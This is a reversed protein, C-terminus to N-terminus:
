EQNRQSFEMEYVRLETELGGPLFEALTGKSPMYGVFLRGTTKKPKNEIGQTAVQAPVTSDFAYAAVDGRFSGTRWIEQMAAGDWTLGTVMGSSYIRWKYFAKIGKSKNENVVIEQKGDMNFDAVLLNGPVFIHERDSEEDVTLNLRDVRNTAEGQSPGLYTLSGGYTKNSVWILQNASNYIKMKEHRDIAVTSVLGNGELDAYVFDFLNVGKPLPLTKGKSITSNGDLELQYLGPKVFDIRDLGRQQGVLQMGEGPINVPRLYWPIDQAVIQFGTEKNWRMILSSVYLGSTASIYIEKEGDKNIDAFNIAHIRLPSPLTTKAFLKIGVKDVKYLQIKTGAAVLIEDQGDNDVDGITMASMEVPITLKRKAGVASVQMGSGDLSTINGGYQRKKYAAEPHVTVFGQDGYDQAGQTGKKSGPQYGFAAISIEETLNEVDDILSTAVDSVVSFRLPADESVLPYLVIQIDLGTTLGYLAGTVLYDGQLPSKLKDDSAGQKKLAALEKQTFVKDVVVVRDKAALRSALMSQISDTLYGYKGAGSNEFVTFIIKYNKETQKSEDAQVLTLPGASLLIILCLLIMLTYIQIRM